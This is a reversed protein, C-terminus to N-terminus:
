SMKGEIESHASEVPSGLYDGGSKGGLLQQAKREAVVGLCETHADRGWGYNLNPALGM